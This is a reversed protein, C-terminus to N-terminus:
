DIPLGLYTHGLLKSKISVVCAILFPCFFVCVVYCGRIVVRLYDLPVQRFDFGKPGCLGILQLISDILM